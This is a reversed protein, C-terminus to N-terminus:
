WPNLWETMNRRDLCVKGISKEKSVSSIKRKWRCGANPRRAITGWWHKPCLNTHVAVPWYGFCHRPCSECIWFTTPLDGWLYVNDVGLFGRPCLHQFKMFSWTKEHVLTVATETWLDCLRERNKMRQIWVDLRNKATQWTTSQQAQGCSSRRLCETTVGVAAAGRCQEAVCQRWSRPDNLSNTALLTSLHQFTRHDATLQQKKFNLTLSDTPFMNRSFWIGLHWFSSKKM